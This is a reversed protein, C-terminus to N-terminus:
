FYIYLKYMNFGLYIINLNRHIGLFIFYENKSFIQVYIKKKNKM